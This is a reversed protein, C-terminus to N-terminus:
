CIYSCIVKIYGTIINAVSVPSNTHRVLLTFITLRARLVDRKCLLM